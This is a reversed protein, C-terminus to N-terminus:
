NEWTAHVIGEKCFRLNLIDFVDNMMKTLREINETGQFNSKILKGVETDEQQNRLINFAMPTM